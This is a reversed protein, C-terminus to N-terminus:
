AWQNPQSPRAIQQPRLRDPRDEIRALHCAIAAADGPQQALVLRQGAAVLAREAVPGLTVVLLKQDVRGLRQRRKLRREDTRARREISEAVGSAPSRSAM